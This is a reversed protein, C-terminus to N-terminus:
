KAVELFFAITEERLVYPKAIVLIPRNQAQCSIQNCWPCSIIEKVMGYGSLVVFFLKFIGFNILM